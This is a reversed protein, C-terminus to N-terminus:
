EGRLLGSSVPPLFINGPTPVSEEEEVDFLIEKLKNFTKVNSEYVSKAYEKKNEFTEPTEKRLSSADYNREKLNKSKPVSGDDYAVLVCVVAEFVATCQWCTCKDRAIKGRRASYCGAEYLFAKPEMALVKFYGKENGSGYKHSVIDGPTFVEGKQKSM